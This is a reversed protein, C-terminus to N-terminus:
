RGRIHAILGGDARCPNGNRCRKGGNNLDLCKVRVAIRVRFQGAAPYVHRFCASPGTPIFAEPPSGDGWDVKSGDDLGEQGLCIPNAEWEIGIAQGTDGFV